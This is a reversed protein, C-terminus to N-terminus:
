KDPGNETTYHRQINTGKVNSITPMKKNKLLKKAEGQENKQSGEKPLNTSPQRNM